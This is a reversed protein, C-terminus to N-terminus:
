RDAITVAARLRYFGLRKAFEAAKDLPLDFLFEDGDRFVIFDFLGKGQPTLLGAYVARGPGAASIDATVLDNLFKLADPGGVAVVGRRALRAVRAGTTPRGQM